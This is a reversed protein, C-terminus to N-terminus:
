LHHWTQSTEPQTVDGLTEMKLQFRKSSSIIGLVIKLIYSPTFLDFMFLEYVEPNSSWILPVNAWHINIFTKKKKLLFNCSQNLNLTAKLVNHPNCIDYRNTGTISSILAYEKTVM